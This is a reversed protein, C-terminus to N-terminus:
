RGPRKFWRVYAIREVLAFVVVIVVAPVGRVGIATLFAILLMELGM